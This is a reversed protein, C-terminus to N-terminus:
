AKRARRRRAALGFGALGLATLTMPEPIPEFDFQQNIGTNTAFIVNDVAGTRNAWGSSSSDGMIFNLNGPVGTVSGSITANAGTLSTSNSTITGLIQTWTLGTQGTGLRWHPATLLDWSNWQGVTGASTWGPDFIYNRTIPSPLGFFTGQGRVVLNVYPQFGPNSGAAIFSSYSFATITNLQVGNFQNTHLWARESTNGSTLVAAGEGIAGGFNSNLDISAAGPTTTNWGSDPLERVITQAFLQSSVAALALVPWIKNPVKM